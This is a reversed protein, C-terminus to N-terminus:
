SVPTATVIIVSIIFILNTINVVHLKVIRLQLMMCFTMYVHARSRAVALVYCKHTYYYICVCRHFLIYERWASLKISDWGRCCSSILNAPYWSFGSQFHAWSFRYFLIIWWLKLLLSMTTVGMLVSVCTCARRWGGTGGAWALWENGVLGHENRM